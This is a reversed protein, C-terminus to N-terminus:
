VSLLRAKRQKGSRQKAQKMIDTSFLVQAAQTTTKLSTISIATRKISSVSTLKLHRSLYSFLYKLTLGAVSIGDKFMDIKRERWFQSMKEVEEIFPVVNLNKYWVLFDEFIKMNNEEWVQQCYEYEQETINTNKLSSYYAAHLPLSTENLKDLKDIWECPFFGKTQECEYARLFQDYSFGPVVYNSIDLYKLSDTKLCVHNSNRKVTFKIPQTEILYPFLFEKVANLGYKGSNFGLVPLERLYETLKVALENLVKNDSTQEQGFLMDEYMALEQRQQRRDQKTGRDLAVHFRRYFSVDEQEQIEDDLFARDQENEPEIEEEDEENDSAMLDIDRSQNESEEESNEDEDSEVNGEHIDVLIQGLRDEHPESNNPGRATELAEFVEAYRQRLLSSSKTSITTLYQVFEELLLDSDGESVFCKPAQYGPVNSWVSVSLPVHTSQWTLKETNKLEQAKEQNFYCEFDFTARYPFYRWEEPVVIGEDELEEFITKPVHYAGGPYKLQVKGDCTKEHRQCKWMDKWYKGCRSCCFSKSYRALDKIYSFHNEYLNLYLTSSYHRHSRRLLTAAIEPTNEENDEDESHSQTPALSYVQINVEYLKELEDLESLKVGHFKKKGLGADRYQQYYYQTDRELNKTHCGNHVALCRFFCLNDEYPKGTNANNEM